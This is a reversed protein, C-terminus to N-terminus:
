NSAGRSLRFVTSVDGDFTSFPINPKSQFRFERGLVRVVCAEFTAPVLQGDLVEVFKWQHVVAENPTSSVTASARIKLDGVIDDAAMCSDLSVGRAQMGLGTEDIVRNRLEQEAVDYAEARRAPAVMAPEIALTPRGAIQPSVTGAVPVLSGTTREGPRAAVPIGQYPEQRGSAVEYAIGFAAIASLVVILAFRM